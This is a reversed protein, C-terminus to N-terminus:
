NEFEEIRWYEQTNNINREIILPSQKEDLEREAISIPDEHPDSVKVYSKAGRSIQTARIGICRAREYKTMIPKSKKQEYLKEKITNKDIFVERSDEETIPEVIDDVDETFIEGNDQVDEIDITNEM